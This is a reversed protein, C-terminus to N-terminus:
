FPTEWPKASLRVIVGQIDNRTFIQFEEDEPSTPYLFPQVFRHFYVFEAHLVDPETPKHRDLFDELKTWPNPDPKPPRSHEPYRSWLLFGRLRTWLNPDPLWAHGATGFSAHPNIIELPWLLIQNYRAIKMMPTRMM